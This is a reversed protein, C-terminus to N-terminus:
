WRHKTMYRKNLKIPISDRIYRRCKVCYKKTVFEISGDMSKRFYSIHSDSYIHGGTFLCKLRLFM